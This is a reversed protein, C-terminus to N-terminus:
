CCSRANRRKKVYRTNQKANGHGLLCCGPLCCTCLFAGSRLCGGNHDLTPLPTAFAHEDDNDGADDYISAQSPLASVNDVSHAEIVSPPGGGGQLQTQLQAIQAALHEREQQLRLITSPSDDVMAENEYIPDFPVQEQEQQQQQQGHNSRPPSKDLVPLSIEM